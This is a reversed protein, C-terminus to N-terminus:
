MKIILDFIPNLRPLMSALSGIHTHGLHNIRSVKTMLQQNSISCVDETWCNITKWSLGSIRQYRCFHDQFDFSHEKAGRDVGPSISM